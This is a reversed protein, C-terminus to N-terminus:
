KKSPPGGKFQERIEELFHDLFGKVNPNNSKEINTGGVDEPGKGHTMRRINHVVRHFAHSQLLRATLWIQLLNEYAQCDLPRM